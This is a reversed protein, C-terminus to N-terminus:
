TEFRLADIPDLRSAKLAPYYGFFMGLSTSFGFALLVASPSVRTPWQLTSTLVLSAAQGLLIGALGGALSLIIAEWLFQWQIDIGRAGVAMRIGIERTRETVSVLMINMIGIGGVLLSIAAIGALLIKMDQASKAVAEAIEVPHRLNFDEPAGPAIHHRERLLAAIEAEAENLVAASTASCLIDDLWYQGKIKNQVTTYPMLFTDDQDQGTAAAGKRALVGLVKCPLGKVRVIKNLPDEDVFLSKWVTQGLVCVKTAAGVDQESFSIGQVVAWEKVALYEPTVGRVTSRWNRNGYVIQVGTDVQPSVNTVLPVQAKIAELDGRVLSRTGFSGTRVGARNVSGAEIWIMNAGLSSIASRLRDATGEGVAVMSIVAGIGIAVGLVALGTRLKNRSIAKLAIRNLRLVNM